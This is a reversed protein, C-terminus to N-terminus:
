QLKFLLGKHWVQDFAKSLDCFIMCSKGDDIAKLINDYTKILQYLTSHGPLLGLKINIFFTTIV